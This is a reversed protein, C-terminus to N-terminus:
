RPLVVGRAKWWPLLSSVLFTLPSITVKEHQHQRCNKITTKRTFGTHVVVVEATGLRVDDVVANVFVYFVYVLLM